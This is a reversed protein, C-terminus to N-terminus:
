RFSSSTCLNNSCKSYCLKKFYEFSVTTANGSLLVDSPVVVLKFYKKLMPEWVQKGYSVTRLTKCSAGVALVNSPALFNLIKETLVPPILVLHGQRKFREAKLKMRKKQGRSLRDKQAEDEGMVHGKMIEDWAEANKADM